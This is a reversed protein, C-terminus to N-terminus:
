QKEGKYYGLSEIYYQTVLEIDWYMFEYKDIMYWKDGQCIYKKAIVNSIEYGDPDILRIEKM